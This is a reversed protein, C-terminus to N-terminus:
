LEPDTLMNRVSFTIGKRDCVRRARGREESYCPCVLLVHDMTEPVGCEGRCTIDRVHNGRLEGRFISTGRAAGHM